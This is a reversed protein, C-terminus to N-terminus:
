SSGAVVRRQAYMCTTSALVHYKDNTTNAASVGTLITKADPDGYLVLEVM